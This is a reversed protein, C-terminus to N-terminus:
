NYSRAKYVIMQLKNIIIPIYTKWKFNIQLNLSFEM